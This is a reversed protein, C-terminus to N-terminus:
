KVISNRESSGRLGEPYPLQGKWNIPIRVPTDSLTYVEDVQTMWKEIRWLEQETPYGYSHTFRLNKVKFGPTGALLFTHFEPSQNYLYQHVLRYHVAPENPIKPDYVDFSGIVYGGTVNPIAEAKDIRPTEITWALDPFKAGVGDPYTFHVDHYSIANWSPEVFETSITVWTGQPVKKGKLDWDVTLERRPQNETITPTGPWDLWTRYTLIDVDTGVRYHLDSAAQELTQQIRYSGTVRVSNKGSSSVTSTVPSLTVIQIIYPHNTGYANFYWGNGENPGGPNPNTYGDYTYAQVDGGTDTDSDTVRVGGPNTTLTTTRTIDDGWGTIAHGGQCGPGTQPWRIGLAVMNCVRLANGIDRAGNANAWPGCDTNGYVTVLTYPNAQWTNNTSALWWQLAADMWGGNATGYQANMDAWIDNARAQVTTGTGYGAGALMNAATHLWCSNDGAPVPLPKDSDAPPNMKMFPAVPVAPAVPPVCGSVQIALFAVLLAIRAWLSLITRKM